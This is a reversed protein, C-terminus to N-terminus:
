CRSEVLPNGVFKGFTEGVAWVNGAPLTSVGSFTDASSKEPHKVAVWSKGNWHAILTQSVSDNTNVGDGVAWVNNTAIASVSNLTDSFIINPTTVITWQTGDWHEALTQANGPGGVIRFQGVAWIDSSSIATVSILTGGSSPANASPVVSWQTGDWHEVGTQVSLIQNPENTFNGVAWVNNSALATVANLRNAFTGPNPSSVVSWQSGDWHEILITSEILPGSASNFDGVAWVDNSAIATVGFLENLGTGPNPSPVISWASGNWHEILTSSPSLGDGNTFSGVAWVDNPSTADVADLKNLALGPSPSNVESWASGNWHEVLTFDLGTSVHNEGVAWVNNAALAKVANLGASISLMKPTTVIRFGGCGAAAAIGSTQMLLAPLFLTVFLLAPLSLRFRKM